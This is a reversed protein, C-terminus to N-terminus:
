FYFKIILILFFLKGIDIKNINQALLHILAFTGCANSIKQQAFFVGDPIKPECKSYNENM